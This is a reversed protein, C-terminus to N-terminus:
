TSGFVANRRDTQATMLLVPVIRTKRIDRL